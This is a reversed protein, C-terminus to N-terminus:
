DRRTGGVVAKLTRGRFDKGHKKKENVYLSGVEVSKIHHGM